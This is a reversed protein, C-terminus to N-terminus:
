NNASDIAEFVGSTIAEFAKGEHQVWFVSVYAAIQTQWLREELGLSTYSVRGGVAVFVYQHHVTIIISEAEESLGALFKGVQAIGMEFKINESMGARQLLKQLQSLSAVLITDKRFLIQKPYSTIAYDIADKSLVIKNPYSMLFAEVLSATESNRGFEGALLTANSDKALDVLQNLGKKSFSGSPTSPLFAAEDIFGKVTPEVSQPMLVKARGIGAQRAYEYSNAISAFGHPSGGMILLEGRQRANQPKEWEIEPFLMEDSQKLFETM